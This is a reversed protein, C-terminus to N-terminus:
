AMEVAVLPLTLALAVWFRRRMGVLEPDEAADLTPMAAELAMGCKPCTGPVDSEVGPCMPCFYAAGSSRAAALAAAASDAGGHCCEHAAPAVPAPAHCCDGKTAAPAPAAPAHCCDHGTQGHENMARIRRGDCSGDM